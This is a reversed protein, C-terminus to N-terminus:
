SFQLIRTYPAMQGIRALGAVWHTALNRTEPYLTEVQRKQFRFGYINWVIKKNKHCFSKICPALISRFIPNDFSLYFTARFIKSQRM